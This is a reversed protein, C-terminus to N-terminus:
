GALGRAVGSGLMSSATQIVSSTPDVSAQSWREDRILRKVRHKVDHHKISASM